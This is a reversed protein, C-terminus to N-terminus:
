SSVPTLIQMGAFAPPTPPAVTTMQHLRHTTTPLATALWAPTTSPSTSSVVDYPGHGWNNGQRTNGKISMMVDKSSVDDLFFVGNEIFPYLWYGYEVSGGVCPQNAVGTWVELAFWANLDQLANEMWGAVLTAADVIATDGTMVTIAGLDPVSWDLEIDFDLLTQKGKQYTSIVDNANRVKIETGTDMNKTAKLTAFGTTVLSGGAGSAPTGCNDLKTIRITRGRVPSEVYATATM